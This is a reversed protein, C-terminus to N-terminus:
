LVDQVHPCSKEHGILESKGTRKPLLAFNDPGETPKLMYGTAKRLCKHYKMTMKFLLRNFM